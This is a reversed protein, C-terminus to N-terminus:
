LVELDLHGERAMQSGDATEVGPLGWMADLAVGKYPPHQYGAPPTPEHIAPTHAKPLLCSCRSLILSCGCPGNYLLSKACCNSFFHGEDRERVCEGWAGGRGWSTM